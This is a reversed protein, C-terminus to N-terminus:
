TRVILNRNSGLAGRMWEAREGLQANGVVPGLLILAAVVNFIRLGIRSELKM